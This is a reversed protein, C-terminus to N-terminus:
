STVTKKVTDSISGALKQAKGKAEDARGEVQLRTNGVAKGIAQKISGKIQNASGIIRNKDM